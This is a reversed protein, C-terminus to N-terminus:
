GRDSDIYETIDMLLESYYKVSQLDDELMKEYSSNVNQTFYAGDYETNLIELMQEIEDKVVQLERYKITM